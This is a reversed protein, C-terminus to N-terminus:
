APKTSSSRCSATPLIRVPPGRAGLAASMTTRRRWSRSLAATEVRGTSRGARRAMHERWTSSAPQTAGWWTPTCAASGRPTPSSRGGWITSDVPKPPARPRDPPRGCRRRPRRVRSRSWRAPQHGARAPREIPARARALRPRAAAGTRAPDGGASSAAFRRIPYDDIEILNIGRQLGLRDPGPRREAPRSAGDRGRARRAGGGGAGLRPRRGTGPRRGAGGDGGGVHGDRRGASGRLLRHGRDRRRRAASVVRDRGRAAPPTGMRRRRPAARVSRRFGRRPHRRAPPRAPPGSAIAVEACPRVAIHFVAGYRAFWTDTWGGADAIRIPAAARIVRAPTTPPTVAAPNSIVTVVPPAPADAGGGAGFTTESLGRVRGQSGGPSLRGRGAAAGAPVREGRQRRVRGRWDRRRLEPHGARRRGHGERPRAPGRKELEAVVQKMTPMTTTLLASLAIVGVDASAAANVFRQATVDVGLDVVEFGGGELMAAVLNKGIDHLDGKVTGIAVRGVPRTGCAALAPRLLKLSAKMARAAILLEPVFYDNCEFRRGVEDMAPILCRDVLERPALGSVLAQETLARAPVAQGTVVADFLPSPDFM